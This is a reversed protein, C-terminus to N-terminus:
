GKLFLYAAGLALLPFLYNPKRSAEGGPTVEEAVDMSAPATTLPAPTTAVPPLLGPGNDIPPLLGPGQTAPTTQVPAPEVAMRPEPRPVLVMPTEKPLEVSMQPTPMPARVMQTPQPTKGRKQMWVEITPEWMPDLTGENVREYATRAWAPDAAYLAAWDVENILMTRLPINNQTRFGVIAADV